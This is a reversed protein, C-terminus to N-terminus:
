LYLGRGRPDHAGSGVQEARGRVQGLERDRVAAGSRSRREIGDDRNAHQDLALRHMEFLDRIRHAM